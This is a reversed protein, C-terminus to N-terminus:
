APTADTAELQKVIDEMGAGRSGKVLVWNKPGLYEVLSEVLESKKGIIIDQDPMGEQQAGKKIANAYDGTLFLRNVGLRAAVQGISEHLREAERGLELM